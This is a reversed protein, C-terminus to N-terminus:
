IYRRVRRRYEIYQDGFKRELLKEEKRIDVFHIYAVVLPFLAIMWVSNATFVIGLYILTWGVYMPNRSFAYPGSTLLMKPSSIDMERAEIVSWLSLGLGVLILPWGVGYGIWKAQFLRGSFVVQLIAGLILGVVHAEPIPVNSWNLRM